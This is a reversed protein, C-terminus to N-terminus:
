DHCDDFMNFWIKCTTAKLSQCIMGGPDDSSPPCEETIMLNITMMRQFLGRQIDACRMLAGLPEKLECLLAGPDYSPNEGTSEESRAETAYTHGSVADAQGETVAAHQKLKVLVLRHLSNQIQMCKVVSELLSAMLQQGESVTLAQTPEKGSGTAQSQSFVDVPDATSQSTFDINPTLSFTHSPLAESSDATSDTSVLSICYM